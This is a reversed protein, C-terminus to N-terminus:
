PLPAESTRVGSAGATVGGERLRALLEEGVKYIDGAGLTILVDGPQLKAQINGAIQQTDPIYLVEQIGSEQVTDLILKSDVGPIKEEGAAYVPALFVVDCSAFAPGFDRYLHQTRTYRHPQFLSVLRGGRSQAVSKAAKLTVAVETPHHAYDDVFLVGGAEGVLQFRRGVGKFSELAEAAAGPHGGLEVVGALAALANSVNHIGPVNIRVPQHIGRALNVMTFNAGFPHLEISIARYDAAENRIGYTKYPTRITPMVANVGPDDACLLASGGPRIGDLFQRFGEQLSDYNKWHDLHEPEINTVIAFDRPLRLFSGDSEDTEAAAIRGKGVRANGGFAAVSGGVYVSPDFGAGVLAIGVMASTTSKGHTGAVCVSKRQALLAALAESRHWIPLGRRRAEMIEPNDARVATSVVITQAEGINEAAHGIFVTGGAEQVRKAYRNLNLDSGTVTFGDQLLAEAIASM